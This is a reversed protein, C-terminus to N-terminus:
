PRGGAALYVVMTGFFGALLLGGFVLTAFAGHSVQPKSRWLVLFFVALQVPISYLYYVLGSSDHENIRVLFFQAVAIVFFFPLWVLVATKNASLKM